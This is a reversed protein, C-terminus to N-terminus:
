ILFTNGDVSCHSMETKNQKCGFNKVTDRTTYIRKFQEGKM